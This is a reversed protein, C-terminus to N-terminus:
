WFLFASVWIEGSNPNFNFDCSFSVILFKGLEHLLDYKTSPDERTLSDPISSSSMKSTQHRSQGGEEEQQSSSAGRRQKGFGEGVGQMSAVARSMTSGGGSMGVGGSSRRVVTGTDEMEREKVTSRVVFTSFNYDEEEIKRDSYPNSRPNRTSGSSTSSQNRNRDNKVIMTGSGSFEDYDDDDDFNVAADFDKPLRKLLPPLSDDDDSNPDDKRLMTAYLDEEKDKPNPNRRRLPADNQDDNDHYVVTSYLEYKNPPRRPRRPSFDM